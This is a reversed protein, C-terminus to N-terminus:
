FAVTGKCRSGIFVTSNHCLNNDRYSSEQCLTQRNRQHKRGACRYIQHLTPAKLLLRLTHKCYKYKYTHKGIYQTRYATAAITPASLNHPQKPSNKQHQSNNAQHYSLSRAAVWWTALPLTRVAVIIETTLRTTRKILMTPVFFLM